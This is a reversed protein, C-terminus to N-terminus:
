YTILKTPIKPHTSVLSIALNSLNLLDLNSKEGTNVQKSLVSRSESEKIRIFQLVELSNTRLLNRLPRGNSKPRLEESDM